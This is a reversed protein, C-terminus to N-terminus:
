RAELRSGALLGKRQQCMNRLLQVAWLWEAAAAATSYTVVDPCIGQSPPHSPHHMKSKVGVWSAVTAFVPNGHESSKTPQYLKFTFFLCIVHYSSSALRAFQLGIMSSNLTSAMEPFVQALVVLVVM